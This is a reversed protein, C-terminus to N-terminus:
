LKPIPLFIMAVRVADWVFLIVRIHGEHGDLISEITPRDNSLIAKVTSRAKCTYCRVRYAMDYM